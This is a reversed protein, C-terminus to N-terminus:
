RGMYLRNLADAAKRYFSDKGRQSLLFAAVGYCFQQVAWRAINLPADEIWEVPDSYITASLTSTTAAEAELTYELTM